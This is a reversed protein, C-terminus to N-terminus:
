GAGNTKTSYWLWAPNGPRLPFDTPGPGISGWDSLNVQRTGNEYYIGGFDYSMDIFVASRRNLGTEETRHSVFELEQYTQLRALYGTGNTITQCGDVAATYNVDATVTVFCSEYYVSMGEPCSVEPCVTECTVNDTLPGTCNGGGLIPAPSDCERTRTRNGTGCNSSCESWATWPGHVGDGLNVECIYGTTQDCSELFWKWLPGERRLVVCKIPLLSDDVTTMAPTTAGASAGGGGLNVMGSTTGWPSESLSEWSTMNAEGNAYIWDFYISSRYLNSTFYALSLNVKYDFLMQSVFAEESRDNMFILHGGYVETLNECDAKADAYSATDNTRLLYCTDYRTVFGDPCDVIPCIEGCVQTENFTGECEEGALLPAPDTCTRTRVQIGEGPGCTVSCSGWPSWQSFNGNAAEIGNFNGSFDETPKYLLNVFQESRLQISLHIMSM